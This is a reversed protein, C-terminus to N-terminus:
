VNIREKDRNIMADVANKGFDVRYMTPVPQIIGDKCKQYVNDIVFIIIGDRTFYLRYISYYEKHQHAAVYENRTINLTDMWLDDNIDPATVRKTSKVEIYKVFEAENGPEAIVSQIDYGLGKQKGLAIVKNVLRNNFKSVRSKEYEFVYAEGEDGLEVTNTTGVNPNSQSNDATNTTSILSKVSTTFMDSIDSLKSFYENWDQEFRKREDTLSLDYGDVDFLLNDKWHDSFMNITDLENPNLTVEGDNVIVLNALELYNIQENIHQMDYSSQKGETHVKRQIGNRKDKEIQELVEIPDSKRQLVDLNNLAYYGIDSKTLTINAVKALSLLKLVYCYQRISVGDEVLKAANTAKSMGNPFQMKYCVDKFFAPQDNDELFKLTRESPYIITDDNQCIPFYMGFLKGAIETKHNDLTKKESKDVPLYNKLRNNFEDDFYDKSCPCIDVIITAYASLLNDIEKQSKGRIITCRYQNEHNYM